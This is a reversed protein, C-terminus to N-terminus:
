VQADAQAALQDAEWSFYSDTLANVREVAAASLARLPQSTRHSGIVGRRVLAAKFGGLAQAPGVLTPDANVIEFFAELQNQWTRASEWDGRQTARFLEVYGRPAVNGLGPVVGDLGMLLNADVVVETGTLVSLPRGAQANLRVLRRLQGQDGSSDKVAVITGAQGLRVLLEPNLKSHVAVPIDYAVLPLPSREAIWTFHNEIDQECTLAYFPATVVAHDAGLDAARVIHDLIRSASTDICGALVPLGAKHAVVTRLVEDRDANNLFSVEASSGLAFLGSVGGDVLLACVNALDDASVRGDDTLPTLVPPVVGTLPSIVAPVQREDATM